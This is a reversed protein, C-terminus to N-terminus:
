KAITVDTIIAEETDGPRLRVSGVMILDHTPGPGHKVANGSEIGVLASLLDHWALGVVAGASCLVPCRLVDCCRM